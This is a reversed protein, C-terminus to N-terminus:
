RRGSACSSRLVPGRLDSDRGKAIISRHCCCPSLCRRRREPRFVTRRSQKARSVELSQHAAEEQAFTELFVALAIQASDFMDMHDAGADHAAVDGGPCGQLPQLTVSCSRSVLYMAGAIPAGGVQELALDVSVALPAGGEVAQDGIERTVAEGTGIQNDFRHRFVFVDLM